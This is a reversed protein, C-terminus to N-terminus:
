RLITIIGTEQHGGSNFRYYYTGNPLAQHNQDNGEWDNRYNKQRFVIQRQRDYVLLENEQNPNNQIAPIVFFDNVGDGNPTFAGPTANSGPNDAPEEVEITIDGSQLTLAPVNPNEVLCFYSGPYQDRSNFIDNLDVFPKAGTFILDGDKFWRYENNEISEDINLEIVPPLDNPLILSTDSSFKKQPSYRETEVVGLFSGSFLHFNPLLDDMTFRNDQIRFRDIRITNSTIKPLFSFNNNAININTGGFANWIDVWATDQFQNDNITFALLSLYQFFAPLKGSLQNRSLDLGFLQILNHFSEPIPGTLANNGLFLEGLNHLNGIQTPIEGTLQNHNLRLSSLNSLGGLEIPITGSFENDSLYLYELFELNGIDAPIPGSILNGTLDITMVCSLRGLSSDPITGVINKAIMEIIEVCGESSLTVGHWQRLPAEMDWPDGTLADALLQMARYDQISDCTCTQGWIFSSSFIIIAIGLYKM